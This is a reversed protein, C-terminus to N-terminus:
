KKIKLTDIENKLLSLEINMDNLRKQFSDNLETKEFSLKNLQEIYKETNDPRALTTLLGISAGIFIYMINYLIDYKLRKNTLEKITLDLDKETRINELYKEIGGDQIAFVGKESLEYTYKQSTLKILELAKSVRFSKKKLESVAVSSSIGKEYIEKLLSNIETILDNKLELEM